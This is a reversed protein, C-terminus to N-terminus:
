ESRFTLDFADRLFEALEADHQRKFGTATSGSVKRGSYLCNPKGLKTLIVNIRSRVYRWSGANRHEEQTWMVNANPYNNILDTVQYNPFPAVQEVRCIAVNKINNKQRYDILAFYVQGSCFIIRKINNPEDIQEPYSEAYTRHFRQKDCFESLNSKVLKHRLLQKPTLVILPKRFDRHLQRRLVHFFNAPNTINCIQMNSKQVIHKGGEIHYSEDYPDDDMLQLFREVRASSHEPGQGDFGHPLFMCLGTTMGWKREGSGIM